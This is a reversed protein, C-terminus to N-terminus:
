PTVVYTGCDIIPIEPADTVKVFVRYKTRVGDVLAADVLKKVRYVATSAGPGSEAHPAEWAYTDPDDTKDADLIHAVQYVAGSIDQGTKEQIIATVFEVSGQKLARPTTVM